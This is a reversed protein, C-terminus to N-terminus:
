KARRSSARGAPEAMEDLPRRQDSGTVAWPAPKARVLLVVDIDVLGVAEGRDVDGANDVLPIEEKLHERLFANTGAEDDVFVALDHGIIVHDGARAVDRDRQRVLFLVRGRYQADVPAAIKREQLNM